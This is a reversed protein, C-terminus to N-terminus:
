REKKTEGNQAAQAALHKKYGDCARRIGETLPVEPMYGLVKMAKANNSYHTRMGDKVSGRDITPANGTFWTMIELILAVFWAIATPIHIRYKPVHGFQAWIFAFADWFYVPEQNSIFFAQGAATQTTLLNEIALIHAQVANDIYMWDYFNEGDGVIFYTEGKRILDHILSMVATDEPGIITAPRLACAQLGLSALEPALVYSEAMGKSKGYHLTARGVPISEDMNYYDHDLDDIIVTCSSTYLFKRCGSSMAADLVNRTGGYNIAKVKEWQKPDTSYRDKRAPVIGATHVVLDPSYEVFANNVSQASSIDAPIFQAIRKRLNDPPPHLDLISIRWEPHQTLLREVIGRGLFGSGGTMLVELSRKPGRM